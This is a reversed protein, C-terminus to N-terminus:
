GKKVIYKLKRKGTYNSDVVLAVQEPTMYKDLDGLTFRMLEFALGEKIDELIEFLTIKDVVERATSESSVLIQNSGGEVVAKDKPLKGLEGFKVYFEMEGSQLALKAVKAKGNLTEYVSNLDALPDVMNELIGLASVQQKQKLKSVKKKKQVIKVTM